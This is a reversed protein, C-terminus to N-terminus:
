NLLHTLIVRIVIRIGRRKRENLAYTGARRPNCTTRETLL